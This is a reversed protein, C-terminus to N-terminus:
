LSNGRTVVLERLNGRTEVLDRSNGYIVELDWSNGCTVVVEARSLEMPLHRQFGRSTKSAQAYFNCQIIFTRIILTELTGELDWSNGRTGM